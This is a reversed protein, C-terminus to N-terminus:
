KSGDTAGEKAEDFLWQRYKNMRELAEESSLFPSNDKGDEAVHREEEKIYVDLSEYYALPGRFRDCNRAPESLAASVINRLAAIDQSTVKGNIIASELFKNTAKLADRMKMQNGEM